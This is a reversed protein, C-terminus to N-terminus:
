AAPVPQSTPAAGKNGQNAFRQKLQNVIPDTGAVGAESASGFLKYLMLASSYAESGALLQTDGLKEQLQNVLGIIEDLQGFLTLDNVMNPVSIYSPLLSNNNVGAAIADETFAKNNVDITPLAIREETTLGVLFPLNTNITQLATKVATIQAATATINLRNNTLNSM